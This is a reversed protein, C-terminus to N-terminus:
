IKFGMKDELEDFDEDGSDVSFGIANTKEKFPRDEQDEPYKRYFEFVQKKSNIDYATAIDTVEYQRLQVRMQILPMLTNIYFSELIIGIAIGLLLYIIM